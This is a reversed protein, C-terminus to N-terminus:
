SFINNAWCIKILVSGCALCQFITFLVCLFEQCLIISLVSFLFTFFYFYMSHFVPNHYTRDLKKFFGSSPFSVDPSPITNLLRGSCHRQSCTINSLSRFSTFSHARQHGLINWPSSVLLTSSAPVSAVQSSCCPLWLATASKSVSFYFGSTIDSPYYPAQGDSAQAGWTAWHYLIRRSTCSVWSVRTWDRPWSSGKPPFHCGM